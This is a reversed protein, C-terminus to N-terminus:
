APLFRLLSEPRRDIPVMEPAILCARAYLEDLEHSSPENKQLERIVACLSFYDYPQERLIARHFAAGGDKPSTTMRLRALPSRVRAVHPAAAAASTRRAIRARM